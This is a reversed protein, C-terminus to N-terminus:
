TRSISPRSSKQERSCRLKTRQETPCQCTWMSSGRIRGSGEFEEFSWFLFPSQGLHQWHFVGISSRQTALAPPRVRRRSCQHVPDSGEPDQLSIDTQYHGM